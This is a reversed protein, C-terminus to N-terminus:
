MILNSMKIRLWTFYPWLNSGIKIKFMSTKSKRIQRQVIIVYIVSLTLFKYFWCALSCYIIPYKIIMFVRKNNERKTSLLLIRWADARLHKGVVLIFNSYNVVQGLIWRRQIHMTCGCVIIQSNMRKRKIILDVTPIKTLSKQNSCQEMTM